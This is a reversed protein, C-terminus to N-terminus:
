WGMAALDRSGCTSTKVIGCLVRLKGQSKVSFDKRVKREQRGKRQIAQGSYFRQARQPLLEIRSVWGSWFVAPTTSTPM